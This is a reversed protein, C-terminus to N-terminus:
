LETPVVIVVPHNAVVPAQLLKVLVRPPNEVLPEVVATLFSTEVIPRAEKKELVVLAM